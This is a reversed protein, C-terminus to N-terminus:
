MQSILVSSCVSHNQLFMRPWLHFSYLSHSYAPLVVKFFCNPMNRVGPGSIYHYSHQQHCHRDCLAMYPASSCLPLACYGSANVELEGRKEKLGAFEM